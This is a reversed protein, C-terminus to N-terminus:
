FEGPVVTAPTDLSATHHLTAQRFRQRLRPRVRIVAEAIQVPTPSACGLRVLEVRVDPYDIVEAVSNGRFVVGRM